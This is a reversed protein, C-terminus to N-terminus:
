KAGGKVFDLHTRWTRLASTFAALATGLAEEEAFQADEYRATLYLTEDEGLSLTAGGTASWFRNGALADRLFADPDPVGALEGVAARCIVTEPDNEPLVFTVEGAATQLPIVPGEPLATGPPLQGRLNELFCNM